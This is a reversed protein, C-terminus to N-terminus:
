ATGGGVGDLVLEAVCSHMAGLITCDGNVHSIDDGVVIGKLLGHLNKAQANDQDNSIVVISPEYNFDRGFDLPSIYDLNLFVVIGGPVNKDNDMYWSHYAQDDRFYAGALVAAMRLSDPPIGLFAEPSDPPTNIDEDILGDGDNDVGDWAEEDVSGDGDDDTNNAWNHNEECADSGQYPEMGLGGVEANGSIQVNGGSSVGYLGDGVVAIEDSPHGTYERDFLGEHDRGDVTLTGLLTADGTTTIAANVDGALHPSFSRGLIVSEIAVSHESLTGTSIVRALLETDDGDGPGQGAIFPLTGSLVEVQVDYHGGAFDESVVGTGGTRIDTLAADIGAEAIYFTRERQYSREMTSAQAFSSYVYSIALSSIIIVVLVALLLVQARQRRKKGAERRWVRKELRFM